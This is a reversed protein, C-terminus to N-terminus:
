LHDVLDCCCEPDVLVLRAVTVAAAAVSPPSACLSIVVAAAAAILLVIFEFVHDVPLADDDKLAKATNDYANVPVARSSHAEM